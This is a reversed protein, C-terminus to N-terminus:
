RTPSQGLAQHLDAILDEPSELGVSIRLLNDPTTTGTGEISARHEILSEVGGLSTARTFLEVRAATEMAGELGGCLQFSIIGGFGSMQSGAVSHNPHSALGPYHVREVSKHGSLFRAICAATDSQRRVRLPLTPLSRQYLWCDFPSPTAGAAGRIHSIAEMWDDEGGLVIGGMVDSHGGLYKTSSHLVISAGHEIPRQLVPTAFTNDCALVAGFRDAVRALEGIDSVGMLPNSPTEVFMLAVGEDMASEVASLSTTDVLRVQGGFAPVLERLQRLTGHYSSDTALISGRMAAVQFLALTAASGSSFAVGTAAGELAAIGSELAARNPNGDRIYQYGRRYQGDVDREYTTSVHIAPTVDGAATEAPRAAHVALTDISAASKRDRM